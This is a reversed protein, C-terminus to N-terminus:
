VDRICVPHGVSAYQFKRDLCEVSAEAKSFWGTRRWQRSGRASAQFRFFHCVIEGSNKNLFCGIEDLHNISSSAEFTGAQGHYLAPAPTCVLIERFVLHISM